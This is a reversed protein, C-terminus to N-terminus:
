PLYSVPSLADKTQDLLVHGQSLPPPGFATYSRPQSKHTSYLLLMYYSLPALPCTGAVTLSPKRGDGSFPTVISLKTMTRRGAYLKGADICSHCRSM